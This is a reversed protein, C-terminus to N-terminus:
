RGARLPLLRGNQVYPSHLHTCPRLLPTPSLRCPKRALHPSGSSRPSLDVISKVERDMHVHSARVEYVKKEVNVVKSKTTKKIPEGRENKYYETVTKQNGSQTFSPPPLVDEEELQDGWRARRYGGVAAM